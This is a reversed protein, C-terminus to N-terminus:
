VDIRRQVPMEFGCLPSHVNLAALLGQRELFRGIRQAITHALQTLEASAPVMVWSFKDGDVYVGDFFPMHYHINLNLTSGFRQILTM